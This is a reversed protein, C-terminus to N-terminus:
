FNKNIDKQLRKYKSFDQQLGSRLAREIIPMLAANKKNLVVYLKLDIYSKDDIAFLDKWAPNKEFFALVLPEALLFYDVRGNEVLQFAQVPKTVEICPLSDEVIKKAVTKNNMVMACTYKKLNAHSFKKNKKLYIAKIPTIILPHASIVLNNFGEMSVKDRIMEGDIEGADALSTGRFLPMPIFTVLINEKKLSESFFNKLDIIIPLAVYNEQIALSIRTPESGFLAECCFLFLIVAVLIKVQINQLLGQVWVFSQDIVTM